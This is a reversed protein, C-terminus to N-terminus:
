SKKINKLTVIYEEILKKTDRFEKSRYMIIGWIINPVIICIILRLIFNVLNYDPIIMECGQWILLGTLIIVLLSCIFRIYYKFVNDHFIHKYVVYPDLIVMCFLSISTAIIVGEIGWNLKVVFIISLSVNLVVSIIYRFKAQWYLGAAQIYKMPTFTIGNIIFNLSIFFVATDSLTWEPNIWIGGIFPNFLTLLCVFALGYIWDFILNMCRFVRKSEEINKEILYNGLSSTIANSIITFFSNIMNVIVIYNSYIGILNLGGILTASIIISDISDLVVRSVRSISLAGINKFINKKVDSELDYKGQEKIYPYMKDTKRAVIINTLITGIISITTYIYFSMNPNDKLIVLACIQLLATIIQIKVSIMTIVHSKQDANLLASKYSFFFYSVASNILYLFYVYYINIFNVNGKILFPLFPVLAVGIIFIFLGIGQYARKYLNMLAKIQMRNDESLPKYLAFVIAGGIGLEALNFFNLINTFLGNIGLYEKSLCYIFVTRVIFRLLQNVVVNLFGAAGNKFINYIRM